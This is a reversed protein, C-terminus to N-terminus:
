KKVAAGAADDNDDKSKSKKKENWDVGKVQQKADAGKGRNMMRKAARKNGDMAMLDDAAMDGPKRAIRGQRGGFKAKLKERRAKSEAAAKDEGQVDKIVKDAAASKDGGQVDKILKDLKGGVPKRLARRREAEDDAKQLAKDKKPKNDEERINRYTNAVNILSQYDQTNYM